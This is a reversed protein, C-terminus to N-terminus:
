MRLLADLAHLSGIEKIVTCAAKSCKAALDASSAPAVELGTLALLAGSEAVAQAQLAGHKGAQGVAWAAACKAPEEPNHAVAVALATLGGAAIAADALERSAALIWGVATIGPLSHLGKGCQAVQVLLQLAGPTTAVAGALTADHCAVDRLAAAAFRQVLEDSSVLMRAVAPLGGAAVLAAALDSGGQVVASLACLVHRALRPDLGEGPSLLGALPGMAGAAAVAAAYKPGHQAVSCLASTAGRKLGIESFELSSVLLGLADVDIVTQALDKGQSAVTDLLWAAGERTEADPLALSAVAATLAGAEVAARTVVKGHRCANRLTFAAARRLELGERRRATEGAGGDGLPACLMEVLTRVAGDAVLKNAVSESQIALRGLALAAARRIGPVPDTILAQLFQAGGAAELLECNADHRALEFMSGAFATRERQYREFLQQIARSDKM